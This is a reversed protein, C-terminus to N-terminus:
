SGNGNDKDAASRSLLLTDRPREGFLETYERSIRGANSFSYRSIIDTFKLATGSAIVEKRIQNLRYKKQFRMPSIGFSTIFAYQVARKSAFIRRAIEDLTFSHTPQSELLALARQLIKESNSTRVANQNRHYAVYNFLIAMIALAHEHMQAPTLPAPSDLLATFIALLRATTSRRTQEDVLVNEITTLTDLFIDHESPHLYHVLAPTPLTVVLLDTQPPLLIHVEHDGLTGMQRNEGLLKGRLYINPNALPFAMTIEGPLWFNAFYSAAASRRILTLENLSVVTTSGLFHGRSFQRIDPSYKALVAAHEEISLDNRCTIYPHQRSNAM